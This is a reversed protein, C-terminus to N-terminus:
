GSAAGGQAPPAEALLGSLKVLTRHLLNRISAETRDMAQAVEARSLGAVRSLLVVDREDSELSRMATEFRELLESGQAAESPSALAGSLRALIGAAEDSADMPDLNERVERAVDRRQAHHFAFKDAVKRAAIAFLWTRFGRAGGFHFGDLGMFADRCASQVLDSASERPAFARGIRLRVFAELAPLHGKLLENLASPDGAQAAEVLKSEYELGAEGHVGSDAGDM